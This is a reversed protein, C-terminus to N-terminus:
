PIVSVSPRQGEYLVYRGRQGIGVGLDDDVDNDDDAYGDDSM